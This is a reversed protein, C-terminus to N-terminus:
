AFGLSPGAASGAVPLHARHGAAILVVAVWLEGLEEMVHGLLPPAVVADTVQSLVAEVGAQQDHLRGLLLLEAIREVMLDRRAAPDEGLVLLAEDDQVLVRRRRRGPVGELLQGVQVTRPSSSAVM